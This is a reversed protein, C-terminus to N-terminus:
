KDQELVEQYVRLTGKATENWDYKAVQKLGKQVLEARLKEDTLIKEIAKKIDNTDYPDFYYAADGLIEPMCSENSSIVPTGCAMAELPPLGFGESLSPIIYAKAGAYAIPLEEEEVFGTSIFVKKCATKYKHSNNMRNIEAMVEPERPDPKGVLVLQINLENIDQEAIYREFAEFMRMLNKHRKWMGTYLLYEGCIGYKEKFSKVKSKQSKVQFNYREMDVANYTVKIKSPSVKYYEVIEKKTTASVSFIKASNKVASRMIKDFAYRKAINQRHLHGFLTLDHITIVFKGRYFAPHNFQTFHVLDFKEKNLYKLLKIQEAISYHPVDFVKIKLNHFSSNRIEFKSVNQNTESKTSRIESKFFEELTKIGQPRVLLTYENEKDQKLLGTLLELTYRSVSDGVGVFRGDILIRKM